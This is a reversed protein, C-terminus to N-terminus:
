ERFNNNWHLAAHHMAKTIASFKLAQWYRYDQVLIASIWCDGRNGPREWGMLGSDRARALMRATNSQSMRYRASISNSTVKGIWVKDGSFVWPARSAIDHLVNDGSEAHTFNAISAVPRCWDSRHLLERTMLPQAYRLLDPYTRMLEVRNGGDMGDLPVLHTTLWLRILEETEPRARFLRRRRDQAPIPEVLKYHLTEQLFAVTTNRSAVPTGHLFKLLSTPSIPPRNASTLHEFHLALTAHSLLWKQMDSMYRVERPLRATIALLEAATDTLCNHFRSNAIFEVPEIIAPPVLVPRFVSAISMIFLHRIFIM